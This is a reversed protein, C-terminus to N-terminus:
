LASLVQKWEFHGLFTFILDNIKILICKSSILTFVEMELGYILKKKNEILAVQDSEVQRQLWAKNHIHFKKNAASNIMWLTIEM